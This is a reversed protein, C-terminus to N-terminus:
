ITKILRLRGITTHRTVKTIEKVRQRVTSIAEFTNIATVLWSSKFAGVKAHFQEILPWIQPRVM